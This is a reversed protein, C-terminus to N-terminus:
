SCRPVVPERKLIEPDHTASSGPNRCDDAVCVAFIVTAPLPALLVVSRIKRLLVSSAVSAKEELLV